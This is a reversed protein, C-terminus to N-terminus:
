TDSTWEPAHRTGDGLGLERENRHVLIKLGGPPARLKPPLRNFAEKFDELASATWPPCPEMACSVSVGTDERFKRFDISSAAGPASAAHAACPFLVLSLCLSILRAQVTPRKSSHTVVRKM